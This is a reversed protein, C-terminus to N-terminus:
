RGGRFHRRELAAYPRFMIAGVELHRRGWPWRQLVARRCKVLGVEDGAVESGNGGGGGGGEDDGDNDDDDDNKVNNM